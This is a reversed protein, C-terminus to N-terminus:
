WIVDAIDEAPIAVSCEGGDELMRAVGFGIYLVLGTMESGDKMVITGRRPRFEDKGREIMRRDKESVAIDIRQHAQTKGFQSSFLAFAAIFTLVVLDAVVGIASSMFFGAMITAYPKPMSLVYSLWSAAIKRTGAGEIKRQLMLARFKMMRTSANLRAMRFSVLLMGATMYKRAMIREFVSIM